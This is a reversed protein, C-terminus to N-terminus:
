HNWISIASTNHSADSALFKDLWQSFSALLEVWDDSKDVMEGDATNDAEDRFNQPKSVEENQAAELSGMSAMVVLIVLLAQSIWLQKRM